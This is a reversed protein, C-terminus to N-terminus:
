KSPLDLLRNRRPTLQTIRVATSSIQFGGDTTHTLRASLGRTSEAQVVDEASWDVGRSSALQTVSNLGGGRRASPPPTTVGRQRAPKAAVRQM